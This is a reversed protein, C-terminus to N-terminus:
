KRLKTMEKALEDVGWRGEKEITDTMTWGKFARVQGGQVFLLRFLEKLDLDNDATAM